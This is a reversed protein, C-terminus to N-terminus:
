PHTLYCRRIQVLDCRSETPNSCIQHRVEVRLSDPDADKIIGPYARRDYKVIVWKEVLDDSYIHVPVLQDYSDKEEEDSRSTTQAVAADNAADSPLPFTHFFPDFCECSTFDGESCFCSLNCCM